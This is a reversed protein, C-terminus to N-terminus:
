ICLLFEINLRPPFNRRLCMWFLIKQYFQFIKALECYYFIYKFRLFICKFIHSDKKSYVSATLCLDLFCATINTHQIEGINIYMYISHLDTQHWWTNWQYYLKFIYIYIFKVRINVFVHTSYLSDNLVINGWLM